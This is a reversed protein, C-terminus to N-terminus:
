TVVKRCGEPVRWVLLLCVKLTPKGDTNCQNPTFSSETTYATRLITSRYGLFAFFATKPDPEAWAVFNLFKVRYCGDEGGSSPKGGFERRDTTEIYIYSKSHMLGVLIVFVYDYQNPRSGGV